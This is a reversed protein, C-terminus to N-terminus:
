SLGSEKSKVKAKVFILLYSKEESLKESTFLLRGIYPIDGFFPTKRYQKEEEETILGGLVAVGGNPVTLSTNVSQLTFVPLTISNNLEEGDNINKIIRTSSLNATLFHPHLELSITGDNNVTPTVDLITGSEAQNVQAQLTFIPKADSDSGTTELESEIESIYNQRKEIKLHARQNNFVTIRPNALTNVETVTELADVVAAIDFKGNHFVGSFQGGNVTDDLTNVFSEFSTYNSFSGVTNPVQTGLQTGNWQTDFDLGLTDIGLARFDTSSVTVFRAEIEVQQFAVSRMSTIIDEVKAQETPTHRVFIQGSKRNFVISAGDIDFDIMGRIINVISEGTINYPATVEENTIAQTAISEFTSLEEPPLACLSQGSLFLLVTIVAYFNKLRIRM